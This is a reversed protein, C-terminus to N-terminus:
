HESGLLSLEVGGVESLDLEDSIDNQSELRVVLKSGVVQHLDVDSGGELIAEMLCDNLGQHTKHQIM